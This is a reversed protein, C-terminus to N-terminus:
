LNEEQKMKQHNENSNEKNEPNMNPKLAGIQCTQVTLLHCFAM